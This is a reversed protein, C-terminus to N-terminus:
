DSDTDTAAVVNPAEGDGNQRSRTKARYMARDAARLLADLTAGHDPYVSVGIEARISTEADGVRIPATLEGEMRRAVALAADLDEVEPLVTAFEDGGVRGVMDSERAGAELRRAVEVLVRDGGPHGFRDNISKFRRLDLYIIGLPTGRRAALALYRSAQEELARRNALGTLPDEYALRRLDSELRKRETIDMATGVIRREDDRGTAPRVVEACLLAVVEGDQRTRLRVEHGVVARGQRLRDLLGGGNAPKGMLGALSQGVLDRPAGYGLLDALARNADTLSGALTAEFAAAPGRHLSRRDHTESGSRRRPQPPEGVDRASTVMWLPERGTGFTRGGSRTGYVQGEVRLLRWSGAGTLFRTRVRLKRDPDEFAAEVADRADSRDAPHAKEFLERGVFHGPEFGLVREVSPSMYEVQGSADLVSFVDRGEERVREPDEASARRRKSRRLALDVAARLEHLGFPMRLAGYPASRLMGELEDDHGGDCVYIAPIHYLEDIARAIGVGDIAGPIRVNVLVLDPRHRGAAEVGELGSPAGAVVDYGLESLARAMRARNDHDDEVLLLSHATSPRNM